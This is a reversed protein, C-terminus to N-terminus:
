AMNLAVVMLGIHEFHGSDTSVCAPHDYKTHCLKTLTLSLQICFKCDLTSLLTYCTHLIQVLFEWSNPPFTEASPPCELCINHVPHDRKIHCIASLQM